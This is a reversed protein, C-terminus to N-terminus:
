PNVTLTVGASSIGTIPDTATITTTSGTSGPPVFTVMGAGDITAVATNSSSWLWSSHVFGTPPDQAPDTFTGQANLQYQPTANISFTTTSSDIALSQLATNTVTLTTTGCGPVSCNHLHQQSNSDTYTYQYLARIIVTGTTTPATILGPVSNPNPTGNLLWTVTPSSTLDQTATTSSPFTAIASFNRQSNVVMYPNTPTVMTSLPDAVTLTVKNSTINNTTDTAMITTTGTTNLSLTASGVPIGRANYSIVPISAVATNTSNWVVLSSMNLTMSNDSLTETAIFDQTSQSGTAITSDGPTISITSFSSSGSCSVFGVVTASLLALVLVYFKPFKM